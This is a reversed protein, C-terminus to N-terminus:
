GRRGKRRRQVLGYCVPKFGANANSRHKQVFDVRIRHSNEDFAVSDFESLIKPIPARTRGPPMDAFRAHNGRRYSKRKRLARGCFPLLFKVM